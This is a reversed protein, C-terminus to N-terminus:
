SLITGYYTKGALVRNKKTSKWTTKFFQTRSSILNWREEDFVEESDENQFFYLDPNSNNVSDLDKRVLWIHEYAYEVIHDILLYEILEDYNKWYLELYRCVFSSLVHKKPMFWLFGTWRGKSIYDGMYPQKITFLQKPERIRQTVFITADMWYGGYKELLSFRLIDSFHTLSILGKTQKEVIYTPLTIYQEYNHLDLMVVTFEGRNECISRCCRRVVDPMGSEGQAWFVWIIKSAQVPENCTDSDIKISRATRNVFRQVTSTYNLCPSKFGCKSLLFCIRTDWYYLFDMGSM